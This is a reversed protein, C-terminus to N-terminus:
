FSDLGFLNMMHRLGGKKEEMPLIASMGATFTSGITLFFSFIVKLMIPVIVDMQANKGSAIVKVFSYFIYAM